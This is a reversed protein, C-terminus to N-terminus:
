VPKQIFGSWALLVFLICLVFHWESLEGMQGQPPGLQFPRVFLRKQVANPAKGPLACELGGGGWLGKGRGREEDRMLGSDSNQAIHTWCNQQGLFFSVLRKPLPLSLSELVAGAIGGGVDEGESRAAKLTSRQDHRISRVHAFTYLLSDTGSRWFLRIVWGRTVM